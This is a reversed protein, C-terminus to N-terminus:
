VGWFTPLYDLTQVTIGAETEIVFRNVGPLMVPWISSSTMKDALYVTTAGSDKTIYVTKKRLESSIYLNVGAGFDYNLRFEWPTGGPANYMKFFSSVDEFVAHFNFGHIATSIDDEVRITAGTLDGSPDPTVILGELETAYVRDPATMMPNDGCDVTLQIAPAKEFHSAEVKTVFGSLEAVTENKYNFLMKVSGTRCGCMLKYVDDRLSSFTADPDLWPNLGLTITIERSRLTPYNFGIGNAATPNGMYKQAIDTADLGYIGKVQYPETSTLDRFALPIHRAM